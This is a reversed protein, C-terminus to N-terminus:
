DQRIAIMPDIRSAKRAPVYVALLAASLFIMVPLTLAVPDTPKVQYLFSAVFGSTSLAAGVGIALGVAALVSCRACSWGSLGAIRRAWRWAFGLRAPAAPSRRRSPAMSVSVPSRWHSSRSAPVCDPLRSRRTSRGISTPPRRESTPCRCARTRRGYRGRPGRQRVPAARRSTRLAFVM